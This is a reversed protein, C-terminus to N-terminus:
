HATKTKPSPSSICDALVVYDKTRKLYIVDDEERVIKWGNDLKALLKKQDAAPITDYKYTRM